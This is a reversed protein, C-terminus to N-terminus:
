SAYHLFSGPGLNLYWDTIQKSLSSFGLFVEILIDQKQALDSIEPQQIISSARDKVSIILWSVFTSSLFRNILILNQMLYIFPAFDSFFLFTLTNIYGSLLM